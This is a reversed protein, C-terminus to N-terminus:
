GPVYRFDVSIRMSCPTANPLSRHVTRGEFLCVDGPAMDAAVWSAAEPVAIGQTGNGEENHPLEGLRRSGPWVAIPGLALPAPALPMWATWLVPENKVYFADQHPLTGRPPDGPSMVRVLDGLIPTVSGDMVIELVKILRPHRRLGDFHPSPFARQQLRVFDPADYAPTPALPRKGDDIWSLERLLACVLEALPAVDAAPILGPLWIAGDEAAARRVADSDDPDVFRPACVAEITGSM